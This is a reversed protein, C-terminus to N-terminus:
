KEYGGVLLYLCSHFAFSYLGFSVLFGADLGATDLVLVSFKETADPLDASWQPVLMSLSLPGQHVVAFRFIQLCVLPCVTCYEATQHCSKMFFTLMEVNAM